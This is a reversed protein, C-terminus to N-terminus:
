DVPYGSAFETEVVNGDQDVTGEWHFILECNYELSVTYVPKQVVNYSVRVFWGGGWYHIETSGVWGEPTVNSKKWTAPTELEKYEEYNQLIYTIAEDRAYAPGSADSDRDINQLAYITVAPFVLALALVVVSFKKNV